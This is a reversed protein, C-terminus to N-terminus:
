LVRVAALLDPTVNTQWHEAFDVDGVNTIWVYAWGGNYSPESIEIAGDEFVSDVFAQVAGSRVAVHYVDHRQWRHAPQLV